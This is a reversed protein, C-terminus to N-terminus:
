SVSGTPYQFPESCVLRLNIVRFPRIISKLFEPLIEPTSLLFPRHSLVAPGLVFGGREWRRRRVDGHGEFGGRLHQDQRAVGSSGGKERETSAEPRADM